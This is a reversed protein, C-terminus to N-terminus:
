VHCEKQMELVLGRQRIRKKQLPLYDPNLECGLWRRGLSEAVEGVTGSGMFPDFVVDGPRSGAVICREALARPFTAFHAGKFPEPALTWVDRWNRTEAYRVDERNQRHHNNKKSSVNVRERNRAYRDTGHGFGVGNSESDWVSPERAEQHNYFYRSSKSFLFVHEHSKTPRDKISEPMAATKAWIIDSRLYWGDAQLALAIRAPMMALDKPKLGGGIGRSGKRGAVNKDVGLTEARDRAFAGGGGNGGGAYCDGYNVWLTGDDALLDRAVRFVEVMKCVHCEGCPDGTAWGLCDHLPELGIQGSVGYDRLGWYPPSTVVTQVRLGDAIMHRMIDRCDGLHCTNLNM